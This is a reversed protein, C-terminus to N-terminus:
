VQSCLCGIEAYGAVSEYYMDMDDSIASYIQSTIQKRIEQVLEEHRYPKRKSM